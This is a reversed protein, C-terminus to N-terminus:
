GSVTVESALLQEAAEKVRLWDAGGADNGEKLLRAARMAAHSPACVGRQAVLLRAASRIDQETLMTQNCTARTASEFDRSLLAVSGTVCAVRHLFECSNQWQHITPIVQLEDRM